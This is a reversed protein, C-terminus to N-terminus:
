EVVESEATTTAPLGLYEPTNTSMWEVVDGMITTAGLSNSRPARDMMLVFAYQPDNYPFYGAAWSNVYANGAGVEATGSKAAIAVDSRELSRATGGNYNVAMRMGEQVVRLADQDLKLNHRDGVEGRQVHPTVLTGGNALAAYARLVQLPTSQFGFQGIATLYTDGLRWGDDFVEQKWAPNPVIGSQETGLTIGTSTGFGFRTFYDHMAAIGIGRQDRYGGSIQYMYVNSSFAIAERLDMAGHARWDTFRSPQSPTYPNPIVLEGTSVITTEPRVVGEVLAAYSLFPKVVSGPTYVGGIVKNLFPYREDTNYETILDDPAGDAMVEPDYSPFSTMAIIEGTEIDMIAGAGSRFDAQASSTAIIDYMAQSLAVDVSLHVPEGPVPRSVVHEGVVSQLADIEVIQEGNTGSLVNHFTGEIGNRGEYETRWYFGGSDRQPYSVYGVLQGVGVADSYARTAFNYEDTPDFENWALPTDNRDYIVGREAIILGRNLSNNESVYRHTAGEIIQLSFITYAFWAATLIFFFGVYYISRTGIPLELRGELRSQDLISVNSADLLIHDFEVPKSRSRRTKFRFM